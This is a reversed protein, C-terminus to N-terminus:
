DHSVSRPSIQIGLTVLLFMGPRSNFGGHLAKDEAHVSTVRGGQSM